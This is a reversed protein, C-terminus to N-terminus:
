TEREDDTEAVDDPHPHELAERARAVGHRGCRKTAEDLEWEHHEPEVVGRWLREQTAKM